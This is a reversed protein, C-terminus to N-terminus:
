LRGYKPLIYSGYLLQNENATLIRNFAVFMLWSSGINGAGNQFANLTFGNPAAASILSGIVAQTDQVKGASAIGGGNYRCDFVNWAQNMSALNISSAGANSLLTTIVTNGPAAGVAALRCSNGVAAGDFFSPNNQLTTGLRKCIAFVHIPFNIAFASVLRDDTIDFDVTTEGNPGNAGIVPQFAPNAQIAHRSFGSQDNWQSIAGVAPLGVDSELWLAPALMSLVTSLPLAAGVSPGPQYGRVTM